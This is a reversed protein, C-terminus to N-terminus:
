DYHMDGKKDYYNVQADLIPQIGENTINTVGAGVIVELNNLLRRADGKSSALLNEWEVIEVGQSQLWDDKQIANEVIKRLDEVSLAELQYVQCRSLLANNVEFSPNETTAGILVVWGEEVAKLLSDQQSKNFRHIEDIFLVASGLKRAT